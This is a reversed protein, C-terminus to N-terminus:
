RSHSPAVRDFCRIWTPTAGRVGLAREKQLAEKLAAALAQAATLVLRPTAKTLTSACATRRRYEEECAHVRSRELPIYSVERLSRLVQSSCAM